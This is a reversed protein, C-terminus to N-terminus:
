SAKAWARSPKSFVDGTDSPKLCDWKESIAAIEPAIKFDYLTRQMTIVCLMIVFILDLNWRVSKSSDTSFSHLTYFQQAPLSSISPLSREVSSLPVMISWFLIFIGSGRHWPWKSYNPTWKSLTLDDRQGRFKRIKLFRRLVPLFWVLVAKELLYEPFCFSTIEKFNNLVTEKKFGKLFTATAKTSHFPLM